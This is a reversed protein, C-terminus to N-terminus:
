LAPRAAQSSCQGSTAGEIFPTVGGAPVYVEVNALPLTGNPAFVTGTIAAPQRASRISLTAVLTDAGVNEVIV